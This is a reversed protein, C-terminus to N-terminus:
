YGGKKGGSIIYDNLTNVWREQRNTGIPNLQVPNRSPVQTGGLGPHGDANWKAKPNTTGITLQNGTIQEVRESSDGSDTLSDMLQGSDVLIPYLGGTISNRKYRASMGLPNYDDFFPTKGNGYQSFIEETNTAFFDAGLKQLAPGLSLSSKKIERLKKVLLSSVGKTAGGSIFRFLDTEFDLDKVRLVQVNSEKSTVTVIKESYDVVIRPIGFEGARAIAANAKGTSLWGKSEWLKIRTLYKREYAPNEGRGILQTVM